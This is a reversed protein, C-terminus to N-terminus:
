GKLKAGCDQCYIFKKASFFTETVQNRHQCTPQMKELAVDLPKRIIIYNEVIWNFPIPGYWPTNMSQVIVKGSTIEKIKISALQPNSRPALVTGVKLDDLTMM